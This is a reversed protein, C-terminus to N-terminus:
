VRSIRSRTDSSGWFIRAKDAVISGAELDSPEFIVDAGAGNVKRSSKVRSCEM